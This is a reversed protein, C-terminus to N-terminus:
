VFHMLLYVIFLIFLIKMIFKTIAWIISGVIIAGMLLSEVIVAGIKVFYYFVANSEPSIFRLHFFDPNGFFLFFVAIIVLTILVIDKAKWSLWVAYAILAIDLITVSYLIANFLWPNDDKTIFLSFLIQVNAIIFIASAIVKAVDLLAKKANVETEM